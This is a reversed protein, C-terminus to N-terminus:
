CVEPCTAGMYGNGCLHSHANEFALQVKRSTKLAFVAAIANFQTAPVLPTLRYQKKIAPPIFQSKAVAVPAYAFNYTEQLSYYGEMMLLFFVDDLNSISKLCDILANINTPTPPVITALDGNNAYIMTNTFKKDYYAAFTTDGSLPPAFMYVGTAVVGFNEALYAAMIPAMGGGKSHGTIYLKKGATIYYPSAPDCLAAQVQVIISMLDDTFGSHVLGPIKSARKPVVLFDRLWDKVSDITGRIALVVGDQNTGITCATDGDNSLIASPPTTYGVGDYYPPTQQM